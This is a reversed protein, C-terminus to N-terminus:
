AVSAGYLTIMAYFLPMVMIVSDFRDMIGGHGPILKSYDKIEYNRKILSAILDGFMSAVSMFVSLLCYFWVPLSFVQTAFFKNYLFLWLLNLLLACIVGGICGEWTKKPSLNPTVKHKGFAMGSLQAFVDTFLSGAVVLWVFFKCEMKDIFDYSKYLDAIIPAMTFATPIVLSAYVTGALHEFKIEPYNVVTMLALFIVYLVIVAGVPCYSQYVLGLSVAFSFIIAAVQMFKNPLKFCRTLEFCAGASLLAFLVDFIFTDVLFYWTGILIIALVIGSIVRQKM